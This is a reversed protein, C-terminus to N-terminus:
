DQEVGPRRWTALRDRALPEQTVEVFLAGEVPLGERLPSERAARLAKKAARLVGRGNAAIRTAYEIAALVPDDALIEVVGLRAAESGDIPEGSYVMRAAHGPGILRPLRQTGGAGPILGISCEYLGVTTTPAVARLDCGLVLEFGGATAQRPIAAIVPLPYRELARIATPVPLFIEAPQTGVAVERVVDLQAHVIDVELVLVPPDDVLEDLRAQFEEMGEISLTRDDAENRLVLVEGDGITRETWRM